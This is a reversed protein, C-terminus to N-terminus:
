GLHFLSLCRIWSSNEPHPVRIGATYTGPGVTATANSFEVVEGFTWKQTGSPPLTLRGNGSSRAEIPKWGATSKKKIKWQYPNFELETSSNNHLTLDVENPSEAGTPNSPILYVSAAEPDVTHSCVATEAESGHPPCEYESPQISSTTQTGQDPASGSCGAFGVMSVGTLALLDRRKM